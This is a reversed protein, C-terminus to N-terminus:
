LRRKNKCLINIFRIIFYPAFVGFLIMRVCQSITARPLSIFIYFLIYYKALDFQSKLKTKKTLYFYLIYSFLILICISFWGFNIYFDGILTCGVHSGEINNIINSYSAEDYFSNNSMLGLPLIAALSYIFTKGLQFPFYSPIYKGVNCLSYFSLGFESMSEYIVEMSFLSSINNLIYSGLEFLNGDRFSRILYLFNLMMISIIFFLFVKLPSVKINNIQIFFVALCLVLSIQYRRDGTMMMITIEYLLFSFIMINICRRNLFNSCAILLIGAILLIALDDIIGVNIELTRYSSSISVSQIKAFDTYLSCPFGIFFCFLGGIFMNKDAVYSSLNINQNSIQSKSFLFFGIFISQISCLAFLGMNVMNSITYKHSLDWFIYEGDTFAYLFIRGFVFLYNFIIFLFRFDMIPIKLIILQIIEFSFIIITFLSLVCAWNDKSYGQFFFSIIISFFLIIINVIVFFM